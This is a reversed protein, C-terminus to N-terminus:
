HFALRYNDIQEFKPDFDEMNLLIPSMGERIFGNLVTVIEYNKLENADKTQRSKIVLQKETFDPFVKLELLESLLPCVEDQLKRNFKRRCYKPIQDYELIHKEGILYFKVLFM